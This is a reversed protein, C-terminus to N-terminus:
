HGVTKIEIAQNHKTRKLNIKRYHDKTKKM